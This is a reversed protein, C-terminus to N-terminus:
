HDFSIQNQNSKESIERIIQDFEKASSIIIKLFDNAESEFKAFDTDELLHIASMMRALPARV